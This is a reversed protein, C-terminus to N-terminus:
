KFFNKIYFQYFNKKKEKYFKKLRYPPDIGIDLVFFGRKNLIVDFKTIYNKIGLDECIYLISKNLRKLNYKNLNKKTM